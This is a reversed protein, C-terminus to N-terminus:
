SVGAIRSIDTRCFLIHDFSPRPTTPELRLRIGWKSLSANAGKLIHPSINGSYHCIEIPDQNNSYKLDSIIMLIDLSAFKKEMAEWEEPKVVRLGPVELKTEM